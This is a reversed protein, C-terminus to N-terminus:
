LTTPHPHHLDAVGITAVLRALIHAAQMNELPSVARRPGDVKVWHYSDREYRDGPFTWTDRDGSNASGYCTLCGGNWSLAHRCTPCAYPCPTALTFPERGEQRWVYRPCLGTAACRITTLELQSGCACRDGHRPHRDEDKPQPTPTWGCTRCSKGRVPKECTPCSQPTM